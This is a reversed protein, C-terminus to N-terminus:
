AGATAPERRAARARDALVATTAAILAAGIAILAIQWGAM